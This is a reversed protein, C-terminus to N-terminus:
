RKRSNRVPSDAVEMRFDLKRCMFQHNERLEKEARTLGRRTFPYRTITDFLLVEFAASYLWEVSDKYGTVAVAGTERLFKQIRRRDIALTDCSGFHVIRGKLRNGLINALTELTVTKTRRRQDGVHVGGEKSGHFALYLIDYKKMRSQAWKKCYYDFDEVTGVDRYIFDINHSPAQKVLELIPRVTTSQNLDNWWDGELCFVGHRYQSM